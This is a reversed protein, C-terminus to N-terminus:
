LLIEKVLNEWDYPFQYTELARVIAAFIEWKTPSNFYFGNGKEKFPSYEVTSNGDLLAVPVCGNKLVEAIDYNFILVLDAANMANTKQQPEIFRVYKFSDGKINNNQLVVLAHMHIAELGELLEQCLKSNKTKSFDIFIVPTRPFFMSGLIERKKKAKECIFKQYRDM